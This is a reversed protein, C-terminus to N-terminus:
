ENDDDEVIQKEVNKENSQEEQQEIRKLKERDFIKDVRENIKNKATNSNISEVTIITEELIKIVNKEKQSLISTTRGEKSYASVTIYQKISEFIPEKEAKKMLSKDLEIAKNLFNIAMDKQNKLLYIKALQYYAIPELEEYIANQFYNSASDLDKECLAIIGLCYYAAYLRHNLEAAMEYMEKAMQFDSLSTYVIGLSYYLEYEQPNYKLADQYVTAAEKFREQEYLLEGLKISADYFDPKAKLLNKLMEIAEDKKGLDTLLKTIKYYSKYDTRNIDIASVYEDIARRMGGEKEYIQALIKHALYSNPYKDKLTLLIKKAGKIDGFKMKFRAIFLLFIESFNISNKELLIITIPLFISFLYRILILIIAHKITFKIEIFDIAIGVFQVVLLYIYNTDNKRIIKSLIIIFLSFALLNFIIKETLM